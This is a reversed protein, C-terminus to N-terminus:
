SICDVHQCLSVRDRMILKVAPEDGTKEKPNEVQKLFEIKKKSTLVHVAEPTFVMVTDTLEYGLLWTKM